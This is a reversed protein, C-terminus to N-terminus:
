TERIQAYMDWNERGNRGREDSKGADQGIARISRPDVYFDNFHHGARHPVHQEAIIYASLESPSMDATIQSIANQLPLLAFSGVVTIM